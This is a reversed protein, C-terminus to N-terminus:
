LCFGQEYALSSVIHNFDTLPEMFRTSNSLGLAKVAEMKEVLSSPHYKVLLRKNQTRIVKRTYMRKIATVDGAYQQQLLFEAGGRVPHSVNRKIKPKNLRNKRLYSKTLKEYVLGQLRFYKSFDSPLQEATVPFSIGLKKILSRHIEFELRLYTYRASNKPRPYIRIGKVSNRLDSIYFTNKYREVGKRNHFLWLHEEM